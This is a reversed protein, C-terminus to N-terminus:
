RGGTTDGREQAARASEVFRRVEGDLAPKVIDDHSVMLTAVPERGAAAAMDRLVRDTGIGGYTAFFAVPGLRDARRELWARAAPSLRNAWVPTGVFTLASPAPEPQGDDLRQREGRFAMKGARLLDLPWRLRRAPRIRALEAGAHARVAEAVRATWKTHSYYVVRPISM